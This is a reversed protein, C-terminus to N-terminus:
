SYITPEISYVPYILTKLRDEFFYKEEDTLSNSFYKIILESCTLKDKSSFLKQLERCSLMHVKSLEQWGKMLLIFEPIPDIVIRVRWNSTKNALNKLSNDFIVQGSVKLQTPLFFLKIFQFTEENKRARRYIFLYGEHDTVQYCAVLSGALIIEIFTFRVGDVEIYSYQYEVKPSNESTSPTATSPTTQISNSLYIQGIYESLKKLAEDARNGLVGTAAAALIWKIWIIIQEKTMRIEQLLTKKDKQSIDQLFNAALKFGEESCEFINEDSALEWMKEPNAIVLRLIIEEKRGSIPLKNQRSIDKLQKLTFKKDIHLALSSRKVLGDKEFQKMITIPNSELLREWDNESMLPFDLARRPVLFTTLYYSKIPDLSKIVSM